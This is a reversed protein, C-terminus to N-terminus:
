KLGDHELEMAQHVMHTSLLGSCTFPCVGSLVILMLVLPMWVCESAPTHQAPPISAPRQRDNHRTNGTRM